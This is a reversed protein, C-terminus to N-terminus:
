VAHTVHLNATGSEHLFNTNMIERGRYRSGSPISRLNSHRNWADVMSWEIHKGIDSPRSVRQEQDGREEDPYRAIHTLCVHACSWIIFPVSTYLSRLYNESHSVTSCRPKSPM